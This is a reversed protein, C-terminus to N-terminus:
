GQIKRAIKYGMMLLMDSYSCSRTIDVSTAAPQHQAHAHVHGVGALLLM